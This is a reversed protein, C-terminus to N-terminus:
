EVQGLIRDRINEYQMMARTGMHASIAVLVSRAPGDIGQWVCLLHTLLGVFVCIVSDLTLEGWVWKGGKRVKGAYQAFAAFMSLAFTSLWPSYEVIWTWLTSPREPMNASM